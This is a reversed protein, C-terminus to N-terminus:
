LPRGPWNSTNIVLRFHGGDTRKNGYSRSPVTPLMGWTPNCATCKVQDTWTPSGVPDVGTYYSATTSKNDLSQMWFIGNPEWIGWANPGLQGPINHSGAPFDEPHTTDNHYKWASSVNCLNTLTEASCTQDGGNWWVHQWDGNRAAIENQTFTPIDIVWNPPLQSALKGRIKAIGSTPKVYFGSAPWRVDTGTEGVKNTMGRLNEYSLGQASWATSTNVGLKGCQAGTILMVSIFYDSSFGVPQPDNAGITQPANAPNDCLRVGARVASPLGNTYTGSPGGLVRRFLIGNQMYAATRIKASDTIADRYWCNTGNVIDVYLFMREAKPLPTVTLRFNKLQTGIEAIKVLDLEGTHRGERCNYPDIGSAAGAAILDVPEAQGNWTASLGIDVQEGAGVTFAFKAKGQWPWGNEVTVDSIAAAAALAGGAFLMSVTFAIQKFSM